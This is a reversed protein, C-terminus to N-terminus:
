CLGGLSSSALGGLIDVVGVIEVVLDNGILTGFQNGLGDQLIDVRHLLGDDETDVLIM